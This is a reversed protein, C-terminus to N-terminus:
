EGGYLTRLIAPDKEDEALIVHCTECDMSIVEGNATEHSEDHCRFCGPNELHGIHNPYTGWEIKMEPFVNGSYADQVGTIARALLDGQQQVLKPYNKQYWGTLETAIATRGEQQSAYERSIVEMAQKKIFPLERPIEGSLINNDVAREPPLYIHSPRNHCDICDMIREEVEPGAKQLVDKAETTRFVLEAGDERALTVEPITLRSRDAAKYIIRNEPAVHWHIGHSSVARDGATGIKMLLVTQVHTNQEDPLFKDKIVLKNGIFKEPRHCEECTDRAPRLGHVPTEIPRSYTELAVAFLQRAGSIKSKVFWTAGTGIHCEVCAVRSHPSNQYATFEPNMVTHCFQGCFGVSEMYHYGSYGLLGFIFLNVCTLFVGLFVLKRLRNFRTPDSFHERLYELTFLGVEEKGKFFFLGLFVLTLGLIFAPGMVMYILAGFYPNDIWGLMDIIISGLLLPFVLTTLMAGILSVRSRTIGKLFAKVIDTLRVM